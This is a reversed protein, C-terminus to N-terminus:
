GEGERRRATARELLHRERGSLSKIGEQGIKKLIRDVERAEEAERERRRRAKREERAPVPPPEEDDHDDGGWLSAAYLDDDGGMVSETWKLQKITIYCTIGGFAAIAVLMWQQRVAGFIGLGIAGFYGVYVALRMSRVYGFRPWLAAQCLRGGDLPFIPLLNFLLLLFSVDHITFLTLKWWPEPGLAAFPLPGLPNPVAVGWWTGTMFWFLPALVAFIAVNVMPGGAATLFHARWHHPPRCYALGGLPWMLIEDAEGRVWRCALCHGFEHVLVIGFLCGLHLAALTFDRPGADVSHPRALGRALEVLAYIIIAVHVRVSIGIVRMLPLSWTMPNDLTPRLGQWDGGPRGLRGFPDDGGGQGQWSM